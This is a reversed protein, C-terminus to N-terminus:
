APLSTLAGGDNFHGFFGHQAENVPRTDFSGEPFSTLAGNRNFSWFFNNPALRRIGFHSLDPMYSM